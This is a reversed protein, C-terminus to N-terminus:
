GSQARFLYTAGERVPQGNVTNPPAEYLKYVLQHKPLSALVAEEAHYAHAYRVERDVFGVPIAGAGNDFLRCKQVTFVPEKLSIYARSVVVWSPMITILSKFADSVNPIYQIYGSALLLDVKGLWDTGEEVTTFFALNERPVAAAVIGPTEVVAWKFPFPFHHEAWALHAGFQGGLDLVRLPELASRSARWMADFTALMSPTPLMQVDFGSMRNRAALFAVLDPAEYGGGCHADAEEFSAFYSASSSGDDESLSTSQLEPPQTASPRSKGTLHLIFNRLM